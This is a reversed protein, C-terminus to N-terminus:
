SLMTVPSRACPERSEAKQQTHPLCALWRPVSHIGIAQASDSYKGRDRSLLEMMEPVANKHSAVDRQELGRGRLGGRKYEYLGILLIESTPQLQDTGM